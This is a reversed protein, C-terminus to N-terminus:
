STLKAATESAVQHAASALTTMSVPGYTGKSTVAHQTGNVVATVIVNHYRVIVTAKDTTTGDVNFVQTAGFAVNGLGSMTTITAAPQGSGKAPHQLLQLDNAYADIAANTASGNGRALGSPSFASVDVEIVRYNPVNDLTWTCQSDAGGNLPPAAIEPQGGPLYQGLTAKSVSDCANPVKQVEGPLFTTVLAGFGVNGPHGGRYVKLYLVAGAAIIIAAVASGGVIWLRRRHRADEHSDDGRQAWRKSFAEMPDDTIEEDRADWSSDSPRGAARGPRERRSPKQVPEVRPQELRPQELRPQELRPEPRGAYQQQDYRPDAYQQGRHQQDPYQGDPYRPSRDAPQQGYRGYQDQGHQGGRQDYQAQQNFPAQQGAQDDWPPAAQEGASDRGSSHRGRRGSPPADGPLGRNDADSLRRGRIPELDPFEREDEPVAERGQWDSM